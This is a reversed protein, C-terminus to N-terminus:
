RSVRHEHGIFDDMPMAEQCTACWQEGPGGLVTTRWRHVWLYRGAVATVPVAVWWPWVALMMAGVAAVVFGAGINNHFLILTNRVAVALLFVMLCGALLWIIPAATTM